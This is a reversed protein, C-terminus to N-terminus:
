VQLLHAAPVEHTALAHQVGAGAQVPAPAAPPSHLMTFFGTSGPQPEARVHLQLVPSV